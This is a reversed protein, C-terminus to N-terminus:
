PVRTAKGMTFNPNFLNFDSSTVQADLNWDSAQYGIAGSTFKPNFVNFDSSTIQGDANGDAGYLAFPATNGTGFGKMADTGYAKSQATTFDYLASARNLPLADATMIALHNRHRLVVYYNGYKVGPFFVPSTGDLAMISGNQKMFAAMTDVGTGAATGSRLTLLVWDVVGAPVAVVSDTGTYNWPAVGYPHKAPINAGLFASMTDGLAVYPGQLYAKLNLTVGDTRFYDVKGTHAPPTSGANGAFVGVKAVALAHHFKTGVIWTSGNVSYWLTWINGERKVRMYLPATNAAGTAASDVKVRISDRIFGNNFAAAFIRVNSPNSTFDFRILDNEDQEVVIGQLKYASADGDIGSNWKVEVEFDTNNVSQMMRAVHYGTTWFDHESGSPVSMQLETGPLGYTEGRGLPVFTWVGNLTISNFEDSVLTTAVAPSGTTFTSDAYGGLNGINDWSIAKYHYTTNPNLGTIPVGHTLELKSSVFATDGYATTLGYAVKATAPEDTNWTINASTPGTEAAVATIVPGAVDAPAVTVRVTDIEAAVHHAVIMFSGRQPDSLSEQMNLLWAGPEPDATKWAKFRYFGGQGAVTKVQMKFYYPTDFLLPPTSSLDAERLPPTNGLMEWRSTGQSTWHVWGLAGLPLYGALPQGGIPNTTHGGWRMLIGIAPGSSPREFAKSTSDYGHVTLRVTVEYDQWTTDGIAFMRDYGREIAQPKGSVMEWKGDVIQVSDKLANAGSWTVTYPLPWPTASSNDIVTITTDKTDGVLNKARVTVTNAGANLAAYSLDINFDGTNQLRRLDPGRSLNVNSGGNLSYYLSDMGIIDTVNGLINVWRQPTGVTGFTQSLGNWISMSPPSLAGTAKEYNGTTDKNDSADTAIVRFNYTTSPSLGTVVLSHGTRLVDEVLFSGYGTTTGYEIRSKALEDTKWTVRVATGGAVSALNYIFPKLLDTVAGVPDEPNVPVANDFFFDALMTFAPPITGANGAYLGVKTVTMALTFTGRTTFASGDPSTSVEWADATRTIRLYMPAVNNNAVVIDAIRPTPETAFGDATSVALLYTNSGHSSLDFRILTSADQQVIVGQLQYALSVGSDFKTLLVFDTNTAPQLIRPATNAGTWLDHRTGAPVALSLRADATGTGTLTLTADGVPDTFTWISRKLNYANFDDSTFSAARAYFGTAPLLLAVLLAVRVMSRLGMLVGKLIDSGNHMRGRKGEGGGSTQAFKVPL